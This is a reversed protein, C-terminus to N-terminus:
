QMLGRRSLQNDHEQKGNGSWIKYAVQLLSAGSEASQSVERDSKVVLKVEKEGSAIVM